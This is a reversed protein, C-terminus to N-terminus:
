EMEMEVDVSGAKGARQKADQVITKAINRWLRDRQQKSFEPDSKKAQWRTALDAHKDQKGKGAYSLIYNEVNKAVHLQAQCQRVKEPERMSAMAEEIADPAKIKYYMWFPLATSSAADDETFTSGETGVLMKHIENTIRQKYQKEDQRREEVSKTGNAPLGVNVNAMMNVIDREDRRLQRARQKTSGRTFLRAEHRAKAKASRREKARQKMLQNKSKKPEEPKTDPGPATSAVKREESAMSTNGKPPHKPRYAISANFAPLPLQLPTTAMTSPQASGTGITGSGSPATTSAGQATISYHESARPNDDRIECREFDRIPLNPATPMSTPASQKGNSNDENGNGTM